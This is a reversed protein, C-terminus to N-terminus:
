GRHAPSSAAEPGTSGVFNCARASDVGIPSAVTATSKRGSSWIAAGAPAATQTEPWATRKAPGSTTCPGRAARAPLSVASQTAASRRSSAGRGACTTGPNPEHPPGSNSLGGAGISSRAAGAPRSGCKGPGAVHREGRRSGGARRNSRRSVRRCGSQRRYRARRDRASRGRRGMGRDRARRCRIRTWMCEDQDAVLRVLGTMDLLPQSRDEVGGAHNGVERHVHVGQRCLVQRLNLEEDDQAVTQHTGLAVILVCKMQIVGSCSRATTANTSPPPPKRLRCLAIPSYGASPGYRWRTPPRYMPWPGSSRNWTSTTSGAWGTM